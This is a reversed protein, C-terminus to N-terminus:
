RESAPDSGQNRPRNSTGISELQEGKQDEFLPEDHKPPLRTNDQMWWDWLQEWTDFKASGFWERGDRQETGAKREWIRQFSRKWLREYRPWRDFEKLRGKKSGMPCGVCGLRHFGEDYLSCYPLGRSRIFQWIEDSAWLLIPLICPAGTRFHVKVEQWRDRRAASEEARIGLILVAGKPNQGEKYEECCWRSRRSPFGKKEMRAFFAGRKSREFIVDHHHERIFRVLEPPDPCKNYHWTVKVGAMRALEKIVVSDKGGSFCGYYGEPPEHERLLAISHEILDPLEDLLKFQEGM